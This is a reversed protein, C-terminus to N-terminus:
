GGARPEYWDTGIVARQNTVIPVAARPYFFPARAFTGGHPSGQLSPRATNIM